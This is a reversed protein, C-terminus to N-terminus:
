TQEYYLALYPNNESSVITKELHDVIENFDPRKEPDRQWCRCVLEYINNPYKAPRAMRYGGSM